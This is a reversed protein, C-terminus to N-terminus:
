PRWSVKVQIMVKLLQVRHQVKRGLLGGHLRGLAVSLQHALRQFCPHVAAHPGEPNYVVKTSSLLGGAWGQTRAGLGAPAGQGGVRFRFQAWDFTITSDPLGLLISVTSKFVYMPPSCSLHVVM